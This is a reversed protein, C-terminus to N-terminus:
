RSQDLGMPEWRSGLDYLRSYIYRYTIVSKVYLRTETFPIREIMLEADASFEPYRRWRAYRHPGANYSILAPVLSGDHRDLMDRLYRAGITLNVEPVVLQDASYDPVGVQRAVEAGTRPLIQALGVASASSVVDRDFQSERRVLAALLAPDLREKRAAEELVPRYILPYAAELLDDSWLGSRSRVVGWALGTGQWTWGSENLARALALRGGATEGHRDRATLERLARGKWGLVRLLNMREIREAHEESLPSPPTIRTALFDWPDVGLSRGALVGYYTLPDAGLAQRYLVRAGASDGAADRARAAWYTAAHSWEGRPFRRRYTDFREVAETPREELLALMGLRILARGAWDSRPHDAVAREYATRAREIEGRDHAIEATLFSAWGADPAAASTAVRQWAESAERLLGQRYLARGALFRMRWLIEQGPPRVPDAARGEDSGLWPALTRAVARYEGSRFQAEALELDLETRDQEPARAAATRLLESARQFRGERADSAAVARRVRSSSDLAVLAAGVSPGVGRVEIATEAERVAQLSDGRMLLAPVIWDGALLGRAARSLSDAFSLGREADGSRFAALAVATWVSDTWVEASGRLQSALAAARDTAGTAAWAQLASLRLWHAISEHRVALAEFQEAAEAERGTRLLAEAYGVGAQVGEPDRGGFAHTAGRTRDAGMTPPSPAPSPPGLVMAYHAVAEEYRGGAASAEALLLRGEGAGVSDLWSRGSLLRAVGSWSRTEAHARAALLILEPTPGVNALSLSASLERAVTLPFGEDIREQARLTLSDPDGQVTASRCPLASALLQGIAVGALVIPRVLGSM